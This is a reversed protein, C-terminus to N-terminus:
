VFAFNKVEKDTQRSFHLLLKAQENDDEELMANNEEDDATIKRKRRPPPAMAAGIAAATFRNVPSGESNSSNDDTKDNSSVRSPVAHYSPGVAFNLRRRLDAILAYNPHSKTATKTALSLLTSGDNTKEYLSSPNVELLMQLKEPSCHRSCAVHVPLYGKRDKMFCAQAGERIM